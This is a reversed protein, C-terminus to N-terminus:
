FRLAIGGSFDLQNALQFNGLVYCGWFLDCWFGVGNAGVYTPTWQVGFRVGVGPTPHLKVGAGLIISFRIVGRITGSQGNRLDDVSGFHTAGLGGM